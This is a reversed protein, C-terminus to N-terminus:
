RNCVGDKFDHTVLLIMVSVGIQSSSSVRGGRGSAMAKSHRLPIKRLRCHHLLGDHLLVASVLFAPLQFAHLWRCFQHRGRWGIHCRITGHSVSLDILVKKWHYDFVASIKECLVTCPPFSYCRKWLACHFGPGSLIASLM